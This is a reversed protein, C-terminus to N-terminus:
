FNRELKPDLKFARRYLQCARDCHGAAEEATAECALDWAEQEQPTRQPGSGADRRFMVDTRLIHKSGKLLDEGEHLLGPQFFLLCLGPEPAISALVQDDAALQLYTKETLTANIKLFRTAGGEFDGDLYFMCTFLSMEDESRRFTADCHARFFGGSNYRCFRLCENLGTPRWVGGYGYDLRLEEPCDLGELNKGEEELLQQEEPRSVDVRIALGEAVSRVRSWLIDAFECSDFVRRDNRRYDDRYAVKEM